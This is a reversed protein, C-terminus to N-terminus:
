GPHKSTKQSVIKEHSVCICCVHPSPLSAKCSSPDHDGMCKDCVLSNKCWQVTHGIKWCCFCQ